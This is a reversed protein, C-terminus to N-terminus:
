LQLQSFHPAARRFIASFKDARVLVWQRDQLMALFLRDQPVIFVWDIKNSDLMDSWGNEAARMAYYQKLVEDSYRDYRTDIYLSSNPTMYFEIMDALRAM